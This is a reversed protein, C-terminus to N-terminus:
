KHVIMANRRLDRMYRRATLGAEKTRLEASLEQVAAASSRVERKDCVAIAEFGTPTRLPKTMAGVGTEKILPVFPGVLETELLKGLPQVVVDPLKRALALGEACSGFRRSLNTIEQRRAEDRSKGAAKPIVFTIQTVDYEVVQRAQGGDRERSAQLEALVDQESISTSRRALAGITQNWGLQVRLRTKLTEPSVGSQKLATSLQAPSLKVRTAITAFAADVDADSVSINLRRAEQIKLKEDILEEMATKRAVSPSLKSTLALLKARQDVDYSTIPAGNVTAKISMGAQGPGIAALTLLAALAILRFIGTNM